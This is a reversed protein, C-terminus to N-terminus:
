TPGQPASFPVTASVLDRGRLDIWGQVRGVGDPSFEFAYRRELVFGGECRRARVRRLAVTADLLQVGARTCATQAHARARELSEAASFWWIVGASALVLMAVTFAMSLITGFARLTVARAARPL